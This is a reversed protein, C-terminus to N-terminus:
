GARRGPTGQTQHDSVGDSRRAAAISAALGDARLGPLRIAGASMEDAGTVYVAADIGVVPENSSSVERSVTRQTVDMILGRGDILM